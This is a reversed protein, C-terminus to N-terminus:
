WEEDRHRVAHVLNVIIMISRLGFAVTIVVATGVVKRVGSVMDPRHMPQPWSRVRLSFLLFVAGLVLFV